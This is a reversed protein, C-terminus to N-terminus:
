IYFTNKRTKLLFHMLKSFCFTAFNCRSGTGQHVMFYPHDDTASGLIALGCCILSLFLTGMEVWKIFHIPPPNM